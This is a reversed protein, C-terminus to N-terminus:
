LVFNMLPEYYIIGDSVNFTINKVLKAKQKAIKIDYLDIAINSAVFFNFDEGFLFSFAHIQKAKPFTLKVEEASKEKLFLIILSNDSIQLSL